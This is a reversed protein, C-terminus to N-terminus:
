ASFAEEHGPHPGYGAATILAALEENSPETWIMKRRGEGIVLTPTSRHGGNIFTVFKEAEDDYDINIDDFPVSQQKFFARTRQTDDCHTAGYITIPIPM